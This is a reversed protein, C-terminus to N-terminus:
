DTGSIRDSTNPRVVNPRVPPSRYDNTSPAPAAAGVTARAPAAEIMVSALGVTVSAILLCALVVQRPVRFIILAALAVSWCTLAGRVSGDPDRFFRTLIESDISSAGLGIM